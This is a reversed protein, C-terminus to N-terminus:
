EFSDVFLSDDPVLSQTWYGPRLEVSGAYRATAADPQGITGGLVFPGGQSWSTGGGDITMSRIAFPETSNAGVSSESGGATLAAIVASLLLSQM